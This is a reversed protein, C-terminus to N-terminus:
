DALPAYAGATVSAASVEVAARDLPSLILGPVHGNAAPNLGPLAEGILHEGLWVYFGPNRGEAENGAVYAVRLEQTNASMDATYLVKDKKEGWLIASETIHLIGTYQGNGLSLRLAPESIWGNAAGDGVRCQVAATFTAADAQPLRMANTSSLKGGRFSMPTFETASKRVLGVTRGPVGLADAVVGSILLDGQETPHLRDRNHFFQIEAVGPKDERAPNVLVRNVDAIEVNKFACWKQLAENYAFLAAYDAASNNNHRADHWTPITLIIIRVKPNACRLSDVIADLDGAGSWIKGDVSTGILAAQAEQMNTGAGIGGKNGYDGFTDNTGIMMVVVDPTQGSMDLKFEGTYATDLGLWDMIDSNGLRGSKNIRGAIEYARESSMASHRNNFAVGAYLTGPEVCFRPNQNGQTVGVAVFKVGNDVLVKHLPWRYSPTGFGHTISDGVFMINGLDQPADEACLVGCGLMSAVLIEKVFKSM